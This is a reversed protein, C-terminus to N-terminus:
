HLDASFNILWQHRIRVPLHTGRIRWLNGTEPDSELM